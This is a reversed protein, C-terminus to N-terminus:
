VQVCRLLSCFSLHNLRVRVWFTHCIRLGTDVRVYYTARLNKLLRLDLLVLVNKKAEVPLLSHRGRSHNRLGGCNYGGFCSADMCHRVTGM